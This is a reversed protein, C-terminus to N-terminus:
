VFFTVLRSLTEKNMDCDMLPIKYITEIGLNEIQLLNEGEIKKKHAWFTNGEEAPLLKNVVLAAIDIGHKKLLEIARKTEEVALYEANLVFFFHLKKEDIMIRRVMEMREKRRYLIELISDTKEKSGGGRERKINAIMAQLSIIKKRKKILTDLWAGLLEPLSILRITHGTPATDFIITDYLNEKNCIIAVMRDFLASEHSGPTIEAIQLQREIESLIVPSLITHLSSKISEIYRSSELQPDIELGYLNPAIRTHRDNAIPIGVIDSISHAPDTSVLLVKQGKAAEKMAYATSCSTKGVGGKGGFFIIKAM